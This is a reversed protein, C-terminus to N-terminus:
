ETYEYGGDDTLRVHFQVELIGLLIDYELNVWMGGEEDMLTHGSILEKALVVVDPDDALAKEIVRLGSYETLNDRRVYRMAERLQRDSM